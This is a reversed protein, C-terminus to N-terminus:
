TADYALVDSSHAFRCGQLPFAFASSSKNGNTIPSFVTAELQVALMAVFPLFASLHKSELAGLHLKECPDEGHQVEIGREFNRARAAFCVNRYVRKLM